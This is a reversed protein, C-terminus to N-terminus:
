QLTRDESCFATHRWGLYGRTRQMNVMRGIAWSVREAGAFVEVEVGVVHLCLGQQM